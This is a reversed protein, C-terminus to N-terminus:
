ARPAHLAAGVEPDCPVAVGVAAEEDVVGAREDVAVEERRQEGLRHQAAVRARRDEVVDARAAGDGVDDLAGAPGRQDVADAVREELRAHAVLAADEAALDGAVVVEAVEVAGVGARDRRQQDELQERAALVLQRLQEFAEARAVEDGALDVGLDGIWCPM